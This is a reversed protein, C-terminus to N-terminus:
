WTKSNKMKDIFTLVKMLGISSQTSIFDKLKQGGGKLIELYGDNLIAKLSGKIEVRINGTVIETFISVGIEGIDDSKSNALTEITEPKMHFIFSPNIAERREVTPLGGKNFIACDIQNGIVIGLETGPKLLGLAWRAAPRTEFYNKLSEFVQEQNM